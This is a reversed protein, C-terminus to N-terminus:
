QPLLPAIVTAVSWSTGEDPRREYARTYGFNASNTCSRQSTTNERILFILFAVLYNSTDGDCGAEGCTKKNYLNQHRSPSDFSVAETCAEYPVRKAGNWISLRKSEGLRTV